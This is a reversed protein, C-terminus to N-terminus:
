VERPSYFVGADLHEEDAVMEHGSWESRLEGRKAGESRGRRRGGAKV